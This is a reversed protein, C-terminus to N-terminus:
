PPNVKTKRIKVYNLKNKSTMLSDSCRQKLNEFSWKEDYSGKKIKLSEIETCLKVIDDCMSVFSKRVAPKLSVLQDEKKAQTALFQSNFDKLDQVTNSRVTKDYSNLQM